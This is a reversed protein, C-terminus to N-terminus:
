SHNCASMHTSIFVFLELVVDFYVFANRSKCGELFGSRDSHPFNFAERHMTLDNGLSGHASIECRVFMQRQKFVEFQGTINEATINYIAKFSSVM